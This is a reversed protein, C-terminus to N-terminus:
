EYFTIARTPCEAVCIGCGFCAAADVRAAGWRADASEGAPPAYVNGEGSREVDIAAHPCLRVCSLCVCCKRPDVEALPGTPTYAGGHLLAKVEQVVAHAESLSETVIQPFRCAGALFIGRRNTLVRQLQPNDDMLRGDAGPRLRLLRCLEAAEPDASFTEPVVVLDSPLPVTGREGASLITTEEIDVTIKADAASIVPAADYKFFLAGRERARRYLREMGTAAVKLDRAAVAVRCGREELLMAQKIATVTPIKLDDDTSDLLYTVTEVPKGQWSVTGDPSEALLSEMAALCIVRSQGDPAVAARTTCGTAVVVASPSCVTEKGGGTAILAQFRGLQGDLRKLHAGPHVTIRETSEVASIMEDLWKRPDRRGDSFFRLGRAGGGLSEGREAIVVQMGGRALERSIAIGVLGGGLVLVEPKLPVPERTVSKAGYLTRYVNV